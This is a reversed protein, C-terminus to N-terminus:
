LVLLLRRGGVLPITMEVLVFRLNFLLLKLLVVRGPLLFRQSLMRLIRLGVLSASGPFFRGPSM